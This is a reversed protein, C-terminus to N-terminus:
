EFFVEELVYCFSRWTDLFVGMPLWTHTVCILINLDGGQFYFFVRRVVSNLVISSKLYGRWFGSGRSCPLIRYLFVVFM